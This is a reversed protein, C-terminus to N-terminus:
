TVIITWLYFSLLLILCSPFLNRIPQTAAVTVMLELEPDVKMLEVM